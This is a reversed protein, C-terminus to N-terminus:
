GNLPSGLASAASRRALAFWFEDTIVTFMILRSGVTRGDDTFGIATVLGLDGVMLTINVVLFGTKVGLVVLGNLASGLASAASTSRRALAFWFEDAIVTFM